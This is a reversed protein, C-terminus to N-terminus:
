LTLEARYYRNLKLPQDPQFLLYNVQSTAFASFFKNFFSFFRRDEVWKGKIEPYFKLNRKAFDKDIGPPLSIRIPASQSVKEPVLRFTEQYEVKPSPKLFFFYFVIGGLFLLFILAFVFFLFRRKKLHVM